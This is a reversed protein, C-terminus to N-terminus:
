GNKNLKLIMELDSDRTIELNYTWRYILRKEQSVYETFNICYYIISGENYYLNSREISSIKDLNIIDNNNYWYRDLKGDDTKEIFHAM